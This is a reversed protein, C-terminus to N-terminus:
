RESWKIVLSVQMNVWLKLVCSIKINQLSEMHIWDAFQEPLEREAFDMLKPLRIFQM